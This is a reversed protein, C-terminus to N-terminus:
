IELEFVEGLYELTVRVQASGGVSPKVEASHVSVPETALAEAAYKMAAGDRESPLARGVLYMRSGFDPLAAIGGRRAALKFLCRRLLTDADNEARQFGGASDYVYDGNQLILEM